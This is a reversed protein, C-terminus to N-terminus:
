GEVVAGHQPATAARAHLRPVPRDEREVPLLCLRREDAVEAVALHRERHPHDSGRRKRPAAVSARRLSDVTLHPLGARAGVMAVIGTILRESFPRGAPTRLVLSDPRRALCLWELLEGLRPSLVAAGQTPGPLVLRCAGVQARRLRRVQDVTAGLEVFLRVIVEEVDDHVAELVRGLQAPSLPANRPLEQPRALQVAGWGMAQALAQLASVAQDASAPHVRARADVHAQMSALTVPRGGRHRLYARLQSRYAARTAESRRAAILHRDLLELHNTHSM